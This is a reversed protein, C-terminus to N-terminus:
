AEEMSREERICANCWVLKWGPHRECDEPATTIAFGCLDCRRAAEDLAAQVRQVVMRNSATCHASHGEEPDVCPGDCLLREAAELRARESM